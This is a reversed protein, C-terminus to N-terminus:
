TPSYAPPANTASGPPDDRPTTSAPGADSHVVVANASNATTPRKASRPRIPPRSVTSEGAISASPPAPPAAGPPLSALLRNKETSRQAALPVLPVHDTTASPLAPPSQLAGGASNPRALAAAPNRSHTSVDQRVIEGGVSWSSPPRNVPRELLPRTSAAASSATSLNYPRSTHGTLSPAQGSTSEGTSLAGGSSSRSHSHPVNLAAVSNPFSNGLDMSGLPSRPPSPTESHGVLGYHYPRPDVDEGDLVMRPRREEKEDLEEDFLDKWRKSRRRLCIGGIVALLAIVGGVVGGVIPATKNSTKGGGNADNLSPAPQSTVVIPSPPLVSTVVVSTVVVSGNPLTTSSSTTFTTPDLISRSTLPRSSSTSSSSPGSSISSPSTISSPETPTTGPTIPSSPLSTACSTSFLTRTPASTTFVVPVTVIVPVSVTSIQGPNTVLFTSVTSSLCGASSSPAASALCITSLSTSTTPPSTTVSTSFTTSVQQSTSTLLQFQTETAVTNCSSM